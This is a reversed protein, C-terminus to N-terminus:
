QPMFKSHVKALERMYAPNKKMEPMAKIADALFKIASETSPGEPLGAIGQLLSKWDELGIAPQKPSWESSAKANDPMQDSFHDTFRKAHMMVERNRKLDPQTDLVSRIDKIGQDFTNAAIHKDVLKGIMDPKVSFDIESQNWGEFVHIHKMTNKIKM